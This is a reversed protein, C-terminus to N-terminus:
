RELVLFSYDHDNNADAQHDERSSEKWEPGIEPFHADGEVECRVQTLYICDAAALMQKYFHAGGVIMIEEAGEQQAEALAMEISDVVLCGPAEFDMNRSVVINTRGPLPRGISEYTKRGMLIPKGMTVAKFHALDAPLQWPLRNEIGIVRNGAMAVIISIKM